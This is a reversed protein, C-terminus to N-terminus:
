DHSDSNLQSIFPRLNSLTQNKLNLEHNEDAASRIQDTTSPQNETWKHSPFHHANLAQYHASAILIVQSV